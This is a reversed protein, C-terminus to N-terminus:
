ENEVVKEILEECESDIWTQMCENVVDLVEAPDELEVAERLRVQCQNAVNVCDITSSIDQAQFSGCAIMIFITMIVVGISVLSFKNMKKKGKM